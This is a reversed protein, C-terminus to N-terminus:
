VYIKIRPNQFISKIEVVPTNGIADFISSYRM